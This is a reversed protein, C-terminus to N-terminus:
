TNGSPTWRHPGSDRWELWASDDLLLDADPIGARQLLLVLSEDDYAIGVIRRQLTVRRGGTPSLRHVVIPVRRMVGAHPQRVTGARRAGDDMEGAGDSGLMGDLFHQFSWSFFQFSPECPGVVHIAWTMRHPGGERTLRVTFARLAAHLVGIAVSAALVGFRHLASTLLRRGPM